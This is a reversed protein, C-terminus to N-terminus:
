RGVAMPLFVQSLIEDPGPAEPNATEGHDVWLSVPLHIDYSSGASQLQLHLQGDYYGSPASELAILKVPISLVGDQVIIEELDVELYVAPVPIPAPAVEDINRAVWGITASAGAVSVGAQSLQQLTVTLSSEIHDVWGFGLSSPVAVAPLDSARLVDLRGAGQDAASVGELTKASNILVSRIIEPSWDPHMELLLAAAGSVHPAAASTGSFDSYLRNDESDASWATTTIRSGPAVLEPKNLEPTAPM